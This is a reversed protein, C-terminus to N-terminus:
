AVKSLTIETSESQTSKQESEVLDLTYKLGCLDDFADYDLVIEATQEGANISLIIQTNDNCEAINLQSNQNNLSDIHFTKLM